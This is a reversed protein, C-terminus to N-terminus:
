CVVWHASEEEDAMEFESLNHFARRQGEGGLSNQLRLRGVRELSHQHLASAPVSVYVHSNGALPARGEPADPAASPVVDARARDVSARRTSQDGMSIQNTRLVVEELAGVIASSGLLFSPPLRGSLEVSSVVVALEDSSFRYRLDVPSTASMGPTSARTGMPQGHGWGQPCWVALCPHPRGGFSRSGSRM